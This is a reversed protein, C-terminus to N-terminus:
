EGKEVAGLKLLRKEETKNIDDVTKGPSFIQLNGEKDRISIM